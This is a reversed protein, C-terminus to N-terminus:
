KVNMVFLTIDDFQPMEKQFDQVSSVLTDCITQSSGDKNQNLLAEMRDEGYEQEETDIAENLGDTYLVLTDGPSLNIEALKMPMEEMIGAVMTNMPPLMRFDKNEGNASRYFPMNHGASSYKLNGTKINYIGYFITIFMKASDDLSVLRNNFEEMVIEPSKTDLTLMRLLTRSVAMFLAAPVGKGSVDGIVLAYNEDDIPSFDYYDGGVEKAPECTGYVDIENM